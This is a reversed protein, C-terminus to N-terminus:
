LLSIEKEINIRAQREYKEKFYTTKYIEKFELFHILVKKRGPKYLFDPYIAYEERIQSVYKEYEEWSKGLISLDADLLYNTDVDISKRHNKTAIIQNNIKALQDDSLKIKLLRERAFEASKEENDKATSKYILDHYFVSFLIADFDEINNKVEYLEDIMNQVHILNHYHRKKSNYAKEIETWYVDFLDRNNSYKEFLHSFEIKLNESM